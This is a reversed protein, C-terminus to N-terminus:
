HRIQKFWSKLNLSAACEVEISFGQGRSRMLGFECLCWTILMELRICIRLNTLFNTHYAIHVCWLWFIIRRVVFGLYWGVVRSPVVREIVVAGDNILM